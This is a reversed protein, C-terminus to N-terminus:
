IVTFSLGSMQEAHAAGSFLFWLIHLHKQSGTFHKIHQHADNDSHLAQSVSVSCWAGALRLGIPPKRM